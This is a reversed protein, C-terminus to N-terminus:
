GRPLIGVVRRYERNSPIRGVRPANPFTLMKRDTTRRMAPPTNKASNAYSAGAGSANPGFRAGAGWDHIGERQIRRAPGEWLRFKTSVPTYESHGGGDTMRFDRPSVIEDGSVEWAM